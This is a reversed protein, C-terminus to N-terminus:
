REPPIYPTFVDQGRIYGTGADTALILNTGFAVRWVNRRAGQLHITAGKSVWAAFSRQVHDPLRVIEAPLM